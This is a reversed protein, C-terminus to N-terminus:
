KVVTIKYINIEIPPETKGLIQLKFKIKYSGAKTAKFTYVFTGGGMIEPDNDIPVFERTVYEVGSKPTINYDWRYATGGHADLTIEFTDDVAVDELSYTNTIESNCGALAMIIFAVLSLIFFRQLTKRM